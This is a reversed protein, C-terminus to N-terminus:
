PVLTGTVSLRTFFEDDKDRLLSLFEHHFEVFATLPDEAFYLTDFSGKPTFRAGFRRAGVGSLPLYPPVLYQLRVARYLIRRYAPSPLSAFAARLAVPANM